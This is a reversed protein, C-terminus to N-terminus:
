TKLKFLYRWINGSVFIKIMCLKLFKRPFSQVETRMLQSYLNSILTLRQQIVQLVSRLNISFVTKNLSFLSNKRLFLEIYFRM